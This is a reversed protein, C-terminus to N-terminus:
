HISWGIVIGLFLSVLSVGLAAKHASAQALAYVALRHELDKIKAEYANIQEDWTPM